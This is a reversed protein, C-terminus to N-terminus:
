YRQADRTSARACLTWLAGGDHPPKNGYYRSSWTNVYVVGNPAVVMDRAHGIGDAFVTGCFGGPLMLGADNSCGQDSVAGMSTAFRVRPWVPQIRSLILVLAISAFIVFVARFFPRM